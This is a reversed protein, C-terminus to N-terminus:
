ALQLAGQNLSLPEGGLAVLDRRQGEVERTLDLPLFTKDFLEARRTLPHM